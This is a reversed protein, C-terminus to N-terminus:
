RRRGVALAVGCLIVAGAGWLRHTLPEGLLLVAAVAAIVPVSLQLTGARSAGLAPLAAYWLAYGGGTAVAGSLAALAVGGATAHAAAGYSALFLLGLPATRLLNDATTSLPDTTSRGRISYVGWAVGALAM